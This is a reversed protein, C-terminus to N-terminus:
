ATEQKRKCLIREVLSRSDLNKLIESLFEIKKKGKKVFNGIQFNRIFNNKM